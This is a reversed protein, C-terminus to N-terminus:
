KNMDMTLYPENLQRKLHDLDVGYQLSLPALLRAYLAQANCTYFRPAHRETEVIESLIAEIYPKGRTMLALLTPVLEVKWRDYEDREAPSLAAVQETNLLLVALADPSATELRSEFYVRWVELNDPDGDTSLQRIEANSFLVRSRKQLSPIGRCRALADGLVPADDDSDDGGNGNKKKNTQSNLPSM